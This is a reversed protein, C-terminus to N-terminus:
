KYLFNKKKEKRDCRSIEQTNIHTADSPAPLSQTDGKVAHAGPVSGMNDTKADFGKDVSSGQHGVSLFELYLFFFIICFIQNRSVPNRQTVRATRSSVIYTPQSTEFDLFRGAETPKRFAPISIHAM